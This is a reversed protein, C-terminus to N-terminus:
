WRVGSDKLIYKVTIEMSTLSIYRQKFMKLNPVFQKHEIESKSFVGEAALDKLFM